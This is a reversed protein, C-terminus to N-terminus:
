KRTYTSRFMDSVFAMKSDSLEYPLTVTSYPSLLALIGSENTEHTTVLTITKKAEDYTFSGKKIMSETGGVHLIETVEVWSAGSFTLTETFNGPIISQTRVWSGEFPSTLKEEDDVVCGSLTILSLLFAFLVLAFVITKKKM